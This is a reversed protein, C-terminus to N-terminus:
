LWTPDSLMDEARIRMWDGSPVASLFAEIFRHQRLLVEAFYSAYKCAHPATKASLSLQSRITSLPHRVLHVFRAGSVTYRLRGLAAPDQGVYTSKAVATRPHVADRFWALLKRSDWRARHRLWDLAAAVGSEDHPLGTLEILARIVGASYALRSGTEALIRADEALLAEVTPFFLPHFEPFAYMEPHCGLMATVVTSCSRPPCLIVIWEPPANAM